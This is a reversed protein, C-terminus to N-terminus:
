AVGVVLLVAGGIAGVGALLGKAGLRAGDLPAIPLLTSASMVMAAIALSASLPVHLFEGGLNFWGLAYDPRAGVAKRFAITAANLEGNRALQVGLDNAAPLERVPADSGSEPVHWRTPGPLPLSASAVYAAPAFGLVVVM